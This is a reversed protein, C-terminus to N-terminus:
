KNELLITMRDARQRKLDNLHKVKSPKRKMKERVKIMERDIWAIEAVVQRRPYHENIKNKNPYSM